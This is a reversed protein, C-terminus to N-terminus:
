AADKPWSVWEVEEIIKPTEPYIPWHCTIGIEQHVFFLLQCPPEPRARLQLKAYENWGILSGNVMIRGLPMCQHWHGILLTDYGQGLAEHQGRTKVDGRVIPGIAGIIGDGGRTGLRDGHTLLFRHGCVSFAADTGAPLYFQIRPDDKLTMELICGLLWDFSTYHPSKYRPKATNRSHNGIVWPVFVRGFKDALTKFAWMLVGALDILGPITPIENTESLETHIDGSVMDGGVAVVIGPYHMNTMHNIALHITKEITTRLRNQAIILNYENINNVQAADVTETWHADSLNLVPIGADGTKVERVLWNPPDPSQEAIKFIQERIFKATINNRRISKLELELERIKNQLALKETAWEEEVDVTEATIGERDARKLWGTLTRRPMGLIEAVKAQNQHIAMLKVARILDSNTGHKRRAM